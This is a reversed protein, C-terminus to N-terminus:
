KEIGDFMDTEHDPLAIGNTAALVYHETALLEWREEESIGKYILDHAQTRHAEYVVRWKQKLWPRVNLALTVQEDPITPFRWNAPEKYSTPVVHYYLKAPTHVPLGTQVFHEPDGAQYFAATATEHIVIHDPHLTRGEPGFTLVIDPTTTRIARVFHEILETRDVEDLAGDRYDLIELESVGLIRCAERLEQERVAPLEDSSCLPPEGSSGGEGRTAVVLSIQVGESAYKALAGGVIRSEDDPHAFIGLIRRQRM